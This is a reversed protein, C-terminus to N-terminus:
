TREKLFEAIAMAMEPTLTVQPYASPRSAAEIAEIAKSDLLKRYDAKSLSKASTKREEHVYLRKRNRAESTEVRTKILATLNRMSM